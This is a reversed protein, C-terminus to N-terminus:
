AEPPLRHAVILSWVAPVLASALVAIIAVAPSALVAAIVAVLGGITFTVSAFRHTRAWNEDSTLTWTTRIGIFPNRRVRPLVQALVIWYVGLSIGLPRGISGGHMAAWLVLIQLVVFLGTTLLAAASVPSARLRERMGHPLIAAGFRLLVWVLLAFGLLLTAGIPKNMWGDANGYLDFHTPVRTPLRPYIAATLATAGALFGLTLADLLDLKKKM